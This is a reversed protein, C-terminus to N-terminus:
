EQARAVGTVIVLPSSADGSIQLRDSMGMRTKEWWIAAAVSRGKTAQWHLSQSVAANATPAGTALEVKFHRRLTVPSVGVLACVDLQKMGYGVLAKVTAREKDSPQYRPRGKRPMASGM